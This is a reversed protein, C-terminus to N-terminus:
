LPSNRNVWQKQKLSSFKLKSMLCLLQSYVSTTRIIVVLRLVTWIRMFNHHLHFSGVIFVEKRGQVIQPIPVIFPVIISVNLVARCRSKKRVLICLLLILSLDLHLVWVSACEIFHNTTFISIEMNNYSVTFYLDGNFSRICIFHCDDSSYFFNWIRCWRM